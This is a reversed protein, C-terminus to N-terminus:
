IMGKPLATGKGDVLNFHADDCHTSTLESILSDSSRSLSGPPLDPYLRLAIRNAAATVSLMFSDAPSLFSFVVPLLIPSILM